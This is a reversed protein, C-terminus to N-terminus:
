KCKENSIIKGVANYVDNLFLESKKQEILVAKAIETEIHGKGLLLIFFIVGLTVFLYLLITELTKRTMEIINRASTKLEQINM